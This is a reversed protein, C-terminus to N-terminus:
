FVALKQWPEVSRTTMSPLASRKAHRIPILPGYRPTANDPARFSSDCHTKFVAVKKAAKRDIAFQAGNM